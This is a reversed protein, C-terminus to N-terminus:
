WYFLIILHKYNEARKGWNVWPARSQMPTSTARRRANRAAPCSLEPRATRRFSRSVEQESMLCNQLFIRRRIGPVSTAPTGAARPKPDCTCFSAPRDNALPRGQHRGLDMCYRQKQHMKRCWEDPTRTASPTCADASGHPPPEAPLPQLRPESPPEAPLAPPGWRGSAPPCWKCPQLAPLWVATKYKADYSCGHWPLAPRHSKFIFDLIKEYWM